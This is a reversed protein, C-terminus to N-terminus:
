KNNIVSNLIYIRMLVLFLVKQIKGQIFYNQKAIVRDFGLCELNIGAKKIKLKNRAKKVKEGLRGAV